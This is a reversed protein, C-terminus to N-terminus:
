LGWFSMWPTLLVVKGWCAPQVMSPARSSSLRRRDSRDMCRIVLVSWIIFVAGGWQWVLQSLYRLLVAVKFRKRLYRGLKKSCEERVQTHRTHQTRIRMRPMHKQTQSDRTKIEKKSSPVHIAHHATNSHVTHCM